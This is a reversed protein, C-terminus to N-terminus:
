KDVKLWVITSGRNFYSTKYELVHKHKQLTNHTVKRLIGTGMGHIIEIKENKMIINDKIFDQIRVRATDSDDGHLDISPVNYLFPNIVKSKM